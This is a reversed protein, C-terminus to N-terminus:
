GPLAGLLVLLSNSSALNLPSNIGFLLDLPFSIPITVAGLELPASNPNVDEEVVVGVAVLALISLPKRDDGNGGVAIGGGGGGSLVLEGTVFM